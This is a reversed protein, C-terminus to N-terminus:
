GVVVFVWVVVLVDDHRGDVRLRRVVDRSEVEKVEWELRIQWLVYELDTCGGGSAM